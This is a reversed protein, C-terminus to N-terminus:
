VGAMVLVLHPFLKVCEDSCEVLPKRAASKRATETKPITGNSERRSPV